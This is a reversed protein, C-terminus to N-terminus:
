NWRVGFQFFGFVYLELKRLEAEDLADISEESFASAMFLRVPIEIDFDICRQEIAAKRDERTRPKKVLHGDVGVSQIHM